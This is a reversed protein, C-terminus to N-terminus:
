NSWCDKFIKINIGIGFKKKLLSVIEVLEEKSNIINEEIYHGILESLDRYDYEQTLTNFNMIEKYM